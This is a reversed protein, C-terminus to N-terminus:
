GSPAPAPAAVALDGGPAWVTIGGPISKRLEIEGCVPCANYGNQRTVNAEAEAAAQTKTAEAAAIKAKSDTRTQLSATISNQLEAPLTLRTLSFQVNRLTDAGLIENAETAFTSAMEQQISGLATTATGAAAELDEPNVEAATTEGQVLICSPILDACKRTSLAQRSANQTTTSFTSDLFAPWGEEQWPYFRDSGVVYTRTGFADDFKSIVAPDTNLEFYWTGEVGLNVGDATPVNIIEQSDATGEPGVRFFRQSAPYPHETSHWGEWTISSNPQVVDRISTDDFWGGNRVVIVQGGDAKTLTPGSFVAVVGALIILALSAVGIGVIWRRKRYPDREPDENYPM